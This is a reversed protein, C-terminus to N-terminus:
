EEWVREAKALETLMATLRERLQTMLPDGGGGRQREPTVEIAEGVEMVVRLPRHVRTTDTLDEEYREVTELIRGVTPRGDLYGVPYCALQQAFYCDALQRWRRDRDAESLEGGGALPYGALAPVIAGRLRKVREITVPEPKTLGYEAELPGLVRETLRPLRDAIPGPQPRGFYEVEKSSLLGEGVKEVRPLLKLDRQPQWGLRREITTLVPEVTARLDGDYYYHLAV